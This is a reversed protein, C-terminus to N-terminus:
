HQRRIVAERVFVRPLIGAAAFKILRANKLLTLTLNAATVEATAMPVPGGLHGFIKAGFKEEVSAKPRVRISRGVTKGAAAYWQRRNKQFHNEKEM